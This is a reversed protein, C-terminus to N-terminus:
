NEHGSLEKLLEDKNRDYMDSGLSWYTSIHEIDDLKYYVDPSVRNVKTSLDCENMVRAFYEQDSTSQRRAISLVNIIDDIFDIGTYSPNYITHGTGVSLIYGGNYWGLRMMESISYGITCNSSGTGGDLWENGFNDKYRGFYLPAAYSRNIVDILKLDACKHHWSKAFIPYGTSVMVAASMFKTLCDSLTYGSGVSVMAKIVEGRDYKPRLLNAPNFCNRRKFIREGHKMYMEFIRSASVGVSLYGGIISGTSTGSILDFMDCCRLGTDAELHSLFASTIAGGMGGGDLQLVTKM